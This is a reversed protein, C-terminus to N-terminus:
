WDYGIDNKIVADPESFRQHNIGRLTANTLMPHTTM